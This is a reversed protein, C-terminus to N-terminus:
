KLLLVKQTGIYDGATMRVFYLGSPQNDANWTVQHYGAVQINGSSVLETVLQGMINYVSITVNADTPLEYNITTTPNFPNPYANNLSFEDPIPNYDISEDGSSLVGNLGLIEYSVDIICSTKVETISCIILDSLERDFITKALNIESINEDEFVRELAIDFDQKLIEKDTEISESSSVSFRIASIDDTEKLEMMLKNGEFYFIAPEGISEASLLPHAFDDSWNWMRIFTAMDEIDFSNDYTPILNPVTGLAPGLEYTYDKEVWASVFQNLDYFDVVNTTDYDALLQTTYSLNITEGVEGDNNADLPYGFLNTLNNGNIEIFLSDASALGNVFQLYLTNESNEYDLEIVVADSYKSEFQINETTITTSDIPQSFQISIRSERLSLLNDEPLIQVITPYIIIISLGAVLSTDALGVQDTAIARITLNNTHENPVIWGYEGDNEENTAIDIFDENDVSYALDIMLEAVNDTALWEITFSDGTGLVTNEPTVMEVTPPTNDTISFLESLGEGTNGFIDHAILKIQANDTVGSPVVFSFAEEYQVKGQLIFNSDNSFYVAVSDMEINDTAEWTITLTDYESISTETTPSLVTIQPPIGDVITFYDTTDTATLGVLDYSLISLRATVTAVNPVTWLYSSVDEVSDVLVFEQGTESSFYLHHSSFGTNDTANWTLQTEAGISLNEPTVIEVTPPTNDTISFLESLGEGTNGFIDQAILKIQANDTVGSPVVFSFAEEYQVKGQFIFNDDNSFYVSVSDMEINDTAEWTVTLEEYEPISTETPSLVTIQPNTNDFVTIVESTDKAENHNYDWVSVILQFSELSSDPIAITSQGVEAMTTDVRIINESSYFIDVFASDLQWNDSAQWDITLNDNTGVQNASLDTINISPPTPDNQDFYFTGIDARTDDPDLPSTPDGADIAPSGWQLTFDDNDSDTFLPDAYIVFADSYGSQGWGDGEAFNILSYNATFFQDSTGNYNLIDFGDTQIISNTLEGLSGGSLQFIDSNNKAFTCKNVLFGEESSSEILGNSTTTCNSFLCNSVNGFGNEYFLIFPNYGFLGNLNNFICSDIVGGGHNMRFHVYGGEFESETLFLTTTKVLVSSNVSNMSNVFLTDSDANLEVEFNENNISLNNLTVSNNGENNSWSIISTTNTGINSFGCADLTLKANNVRLLYENQINDFQCNNFDFMGYHLMFNSSHTSNGQFTINEFSFDKGVNEYLNVSLSGVDELSIFTTSTEDGIFYVSKYITNAQQRLYYGPSVFITDEDFVSIIADDFNNIPNLESGMGGDPASSDLYLINNPNECGVELGGMNENQWGTGICPSNESLTFSNSYPNCFQPDESINGSGAWGNEICSYTISTNVNSDNTIENNWFVSNTATFLSSQNTGGFMYGDNNLFISDFIYYNNSSTKYLLSGNTFTSNNNLFRTSNITVDGGDAYIASAFNDTNNDVFICNNINLEAPSRIAAGADNSLNSILMCSDLSVFVNNGTTYIGRADNEEIDGNFSISTNEILISDNTTGINIGITNSDILSNSLQLNSSLILLGTSNNIVKVSDFIGYTEFSSSSKSSKFGYGYNTFGEILINKVTYNKSEYVWIGDGGNGLLTLNNILINDVDEIYITEDSSTESTIIVSDQSEGILYLNDTTITLNESYSGNLIKITDGTFAQDVAWQINQFPNENSGEGTFDNGNNSVYWIPGSYNATIYYEKTETGTMGNNDTASLIVDYVGYTEYTHLTNQDTSTNGDGFDWSWGVVMGDVDISQDTFQVDLPVQGSTPTATFDALPPQHHYYLAGVDSRSGDPDNISPHGTDVCPSSFPINFDGSGPNIFQPDGSISGEFGDLGSNGFGGEVLSYNITGQGGYIANSVPWDETASNVYIIDNLITNNNIGSFYYGGGIGDDQCDGGTASNGYVTNNQFNVYNNSQICVGGGNIATNSYILNYKIEATSSGDISIGGGCGGYNCGSSILYAQNSYITNYLINVSSNGVVRIGAGPQASGNGGNHHILCYQITGSEGEIYIGGPNNGTIEMNEILFRSNTMYIGHVGETIQFGSLTINSNHVSIVPEQTNGKLVVTHNVEVVSITINNKNEILISETYVGKKLLITTNDSSNNIGEQITPYDQPIHITTASIIHFFIVFIGLFFRNIGRKLHNIRDM